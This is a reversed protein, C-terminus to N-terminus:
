MIFSTRTKARRFHELHTYPNLSVFKVNYISKAFVRICVGHPQGRRAVATNATGREIIAKLTFVYACFEDVHLWSIVNYLQHQQASTDRSSYRESCHLARYVLWHWETKPVAETDHTTRKNASKLCVDVGKAHPNIKRHHHHEEVIFTGRRVVCVVYMGM